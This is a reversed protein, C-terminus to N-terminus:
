TAFDGKGDDKAVLRNDQDYVEIGLDGPPNHDGVLIVCARDGGAFRETIERVGPTGAPIRIRGRDRNPWRKTGDIPGSTLVTPWLMAGLLFVGPLLMWRSKM